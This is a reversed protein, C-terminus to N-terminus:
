IEVSELMKAIQVKAFGETILRSKWAALATENGHVLYIAKIKEKKQCSLYQLMEKWDGHASFHDMVHVSAKVLYDTGFIRVSPDGRRIRGALSDPSAYGVILIANKADEINNAIHHKIRGAEAMGSASIIICPQESNNISKSDEVKSIYKLGPFDFPNGDRTIYELIEPNFEERHANMIGTAQVSLPSDVYVPIVPLKKDHMLKDLLYVIEQTRGVSFAPIIIKGKQQVCIQNVLHLLENESDGAAGHLRDGYTSECIIYDAQPFPDPGDLIEDGPRGIDGSFTLNVSEGTKRKLTLNISVSGLIHANSTFYVSTDKGVNFASENKVTEIQKMVQEVDEITYLAELPPKGKEERRRNIRDLDAEQIHASDSLMLRCLDKTASNAYIPGAYGDKILKPLLGIHDIHAHSLIVFDIDLPNFHFDRNLQDGIEGEGQFMGCDLLINEGNDTTVMHKTGTVRGAAGYFTIKM